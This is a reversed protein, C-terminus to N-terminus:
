RHITIIAPAVFMKLRYRTLESILIMVLDEIQMIGRVM